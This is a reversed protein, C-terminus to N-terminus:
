VTEKKRVDLWYDGGLGNNKRGRVDYGADALATTAKECMEKAAAGRNSFAVSVSDTGAIVVFGDRERGWVRYASAREIGAQALVRSVHSAYAVKNM